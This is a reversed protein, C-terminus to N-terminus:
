RVLVTVWEGHCARAYRIPARVQSSSLLSVLRVLTVRDYLSQLANTTIHHVSYTDPLSLVGTLWGSRWYSCRPCASLGRVEHQLGIQTPQRGM